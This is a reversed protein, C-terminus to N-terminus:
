YNISALNTWAIIIKGSNVGELRTMEAHLVSGSTSTSVDRVTSMAGSSIDM